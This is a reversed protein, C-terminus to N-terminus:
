RLLVACFVMRSSILLLYMYIHVHIICIPMHVALRRLKQPGRHEKRRGAWLSEHPGGHHGPDAVYIYMYIYIYAAFCLMAIDAIRFSTLSCQVEHRIYMRM